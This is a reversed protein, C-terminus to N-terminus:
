PSEHVRIEGNRLAKACRKMTDFVEFDTESSDSWEAIDTFPSGSQRLHNEVVELEYPWYVAIKGSSAEDIAALACRAQGVKGSDGRLLGRTGIIEAAEDLIDALQAADNM